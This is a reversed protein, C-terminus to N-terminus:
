FRGKNYALVLVTSTVVAALASIITAVLLTHREFKTTNDAHVLIVDGQLPSPARQFESWSFDYVRKVGGARRVIEIDDLDAKETFGGAQVLTDVFDSGPPVTYEGPKRVEGLMYIPLRYQSSPTKEGSAAAIERQFFLVEGGIWGLIQPHDEGRQYYQNLDVIFVKQGKQIRVYLPPSDKSTGGALGIVLDLSAEPEVLFRGPKDVLGRVDVWYHREKVRVEIESATKFYPRYLDELKHQLQSVSLGTTNVTIDYPLQLDGDFSVRYDGNLKSDTLCHLNVLFGPAILPDIVDPGEPEKGWSELIQSGKAMGPYQQWGLDHWAYQSRGTVCGTFGMSGALLLCIFRTVLPTSHNISNKSM